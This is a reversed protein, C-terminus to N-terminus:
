GKYSHITGASKGETDLHNGHTGHQHNAAGESSSGVRLSAKQEQCAHYTQVIPILM